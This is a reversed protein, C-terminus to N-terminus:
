VRDMTNGEVIEGQAFVDVENATQCVMCGGCIWMKLLFSCCSEDEIGKQAATKSRLGRFYICGYIPIISKIAGCLLTDEDLKEAVAGITACPIIWTIICLKINGFCGLLDAKWEGMKTQKTVTLLFNILPHTPIQTNDITSPTYLTGM